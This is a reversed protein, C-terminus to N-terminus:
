APGIRDLGDAHTKLYQTLSTPPRGTLHDVDVSVTELSGNRVAWYSSVWGRVEFDRLASARVHPSHRRTARM